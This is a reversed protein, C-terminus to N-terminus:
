SYRISVFPGLQSCALTAIPCTLEATGTKHSTRFAHLRGIAPLVHTVNDGDHHARNKSDLSSSSSSSPTVRAMCVMWDLRGSTFPVMICVCVCVSACLPKCQSSGHGRKIIHTHKHIHGDACMQPVDPWNDVIGINNGSLHVVYSLYPFFHLSSNPPNLTHWHCYWHWYWCCHVAPPMSRSHTSPNCDTWKTPQRWNESSSCFMGGPPSSSSSTVITMIHYVMFLRWLCSYSVPNYAYAAAATHSPMVRSPPEISENIVTNLVARSNLVASLCRTINGRSANCSMNPICSCVTRRDTWENM